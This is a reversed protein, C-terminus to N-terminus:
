IEGVQLIQTGNKFNSFSRMLESNMGEIAAKWRVAFDKVLQSVQGTQVFFILIYSKIKGWFRINLAKLSYYDM